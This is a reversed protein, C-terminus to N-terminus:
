SIEKIEDLLRDKEKRSTYKKGFKVLAPNLKIWYSKPFLKKLGQEVKEPKKANTWNLYNSIYHVHTDVGIVHIGQESLFVNATKAGVGSLETLKNFDLPIKGKYNEELQKSCNIINKTKNKYFNIPKIIKRITEPKAKALSKSNPYKKFLQSSVKITTEDLSRASLIISILIQFNTRWGEAALRMNGKLKNIKKFQSLATKRPTM